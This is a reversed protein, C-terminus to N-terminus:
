KVRWYRYGESDGRCTLKIGLEKTVYRYSKKKGKIYFSQGVKLKKLFKEVEGNLFRNPMPVNEVKLKDAFTKM